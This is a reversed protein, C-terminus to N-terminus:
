SSPPHRPLAKRQAADGAARRPILRSLSLSLLTRRTCAAAASRPPADGRGWARAGRQGRVAGRATQPAEGTIEPVPAPWAAAGPGGRRGSCCGEGGGREEGSGRGDGRGDGRRM